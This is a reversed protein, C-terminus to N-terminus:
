NLKETSIFLSRKERESVFCVQGATTGGPKVAFKNASVLRSASSLRSYTLIRAYTISCPNCPPPLHGPVFAEAIVSASIAYLVTVSLVGECKVFIRCTLGISAFPTMKVEAERKATEEAVRKEEQSLFAKTRRKEVLARCAAVCAVSAAAIVTQM